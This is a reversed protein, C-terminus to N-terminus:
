TTELYTRRLAQAVPGPRGDGIVADDIRVVPMAHSSASSIFAERSAKAEAPTFAREEVRLQLLEACRLLHARTVGALINATLPRTVLVGDATVIWANSSSGETVLGDADVFWAEYAGAARAAQKALVNPLLSVSKIDCRAWRTEPLTIVAVGKAARADSDELKLGKATMVVTPRVGPRPFAHDRPAVGRTIQLYLLGTRVRNRRLTEFAARRLAADSMPREIALERLSRALRTFHGDEDLLVGDQVAWVEYVGDAFQFGRDEVNIAAGRQPVFRGNVYAVRSM